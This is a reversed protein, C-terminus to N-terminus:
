ERQSRGLVRRLTDRVRKLSLLVGAVLSVLIQVLLAGSGPDVYAGVHLPPPDFTAMWCGLLSQLVLVSIAVVRGSEEKRPMRRLREEAIM